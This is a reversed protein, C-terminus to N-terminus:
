IGDIAYHWGLAVSMAWMYLAFLLALPMLKSQQHHFALVVWAATAIHLSPMASIGAGVGLTHSSHFNWLYGSVMQTVQPINNSLDAYRDGLGARQYFIASASSLLYQGISGFIRCIAFSTLLSACGGAPPM